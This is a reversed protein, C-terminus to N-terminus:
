KLYINLIKILVGLSVQSASINLNNYDFNPILLESNINYNLRNFLICIDEIKMGNFIYFCIKKKNLFLTDLVRHNFFEYFTFPVLEFNNPKYIYDSITHHIDIILFNDLILKVILNIKNKNEFQKSIKNDLTSFSFDNNVSPQAFTANVSYRNNDLLHLDSCSFFIPNLKTM